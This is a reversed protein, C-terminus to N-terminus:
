EKDPLSGTAFLADGEGTRKAFWREGMALIPSLFRPM